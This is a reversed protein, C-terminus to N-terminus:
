QISHHLNTCGIFIFTMMNGYSLLKEGATNTLGGQDRGQETLRLLLLLLLLPLLSQSQPPAPGATPPVPAPLLLLGPPAPGPWHQGPAEPGAVLM